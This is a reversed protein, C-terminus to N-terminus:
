APSPLPLPRSQRAGYGGRGSKEYKREHERHQCTRQTSSVGSDRARAWVCRLHASTSQTGAPAHIIGGPIRARLGATPCPQGDLKSRLLCAVPIRAAWAVYKYTISGSDCFKPFTPPRHARRAATAGIFVHLTYCNM